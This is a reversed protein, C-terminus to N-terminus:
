RSLSLGLSLLRLSVAVPVGPRLLLVSAVSLGLLSVNPVLSVPWLRVLLAMHICPPRVSLLLRM